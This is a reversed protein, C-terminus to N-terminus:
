KKLLLLLLPLLLKPDIDTDSITDGETEADAGHQVGTDTLKSQTTRATFFAGNDKVEKVETPKRSRNPSM